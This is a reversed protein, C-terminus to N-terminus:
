SARRVPEDDPLAELVDLRRRLEVPTPMRERELRVVDYRERWTLERALAEGATV